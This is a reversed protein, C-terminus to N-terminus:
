ANALHKPGAAGLVTLMQDNKYQMAHVFSIM